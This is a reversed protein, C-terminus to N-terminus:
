SFNMLDAGDFAQTLDDAPEFGFVRAFFAYEAEIVKEINTGNRFGHGEGEFKMYMVAIGKDRLAEVMTEAQNPPVVRDEAGQFFAVPCTFREVEHLPSREEFAGGILSDLYRSEFKHTDRALAKLDGIGYHSAGVKFVPSTVLARLTTYGGASGGRIAVRSADVRDSSILHTVAAVCDAVDEIGWRDNLRRRYVRGYGTSGGYDVDVVAWGRSTYYQIRLNLDRSAHGTPGGHSLVLLPPKQSVPGVASAHRPPYFYAFTELGDANDYVIQEPFSFYDLDIGLTGQTAIKALDANLLDMRVVTQLDDPKGAIFAIGTATQNLCAYSSFRDELPTVMGNDIDVFVLEAVGNDIRNAVVVRESIPIYTRMGFAWQAAGYEAADENVCYIGSPDYSYLNWYGNADSVFILRDSAIWEPQFISEAVGGAVMTETVIRGTADLTAVFLQNGDWPMNPHDWVLFAIRDADSSLRPSSYFDHGSHLVNVSSTVCDIAVLENLPESGAEHTERIVILLNRGRDWTLDAYRVSEDGATLQTVETWGDLLSCRYINQDVANVFFVEDDAVCYAGGGYENVRSRVNYPAPKLDHRANLSELVLVSRGNEFPRQEIWLLGHESERLESFNVLGSAMLKATIPSKWSGYRQEIESHDM